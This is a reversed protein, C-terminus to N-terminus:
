INFVVFENSYVVRLPSTSNCAINSLGQRVAMLCNKTTVNFANKHM